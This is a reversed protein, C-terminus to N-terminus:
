TTRRLRLFLARWLAAGLANVLLAAFLHTAFRPSGAGVVLVPLGKAYEAMGAPITAGFGEGDRALVGELSEQPLCRDAGRLQVILRTTAVDGEREAIPIWIRRVVRRGPTKTSVVVADECRWRGGALRVRRAPRADDLVAEAPTIAEREGLARAARDRKWTLSLLVVSFAMSVVMTAGIVMVFARRNVTASM